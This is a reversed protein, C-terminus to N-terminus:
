RESSVGTADHLWGLRRAVAVAETTRTVGLAARATALRRDATRRSLGLTAAAERLSLGEALLALIARGEDELAPSSEAGLVRHEVHGVHRLDDVLHDTVERSATAHIVLGCGGLAALLAAAASEASDVIGHRVTITPGFPPDFGDLVLWGGAAATRVAADVSQGAGEIVIRPPIV